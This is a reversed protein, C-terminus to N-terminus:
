ENRPEISETFASLRSVAERFMMFSGKDLEFEEMWPGRTAGHLARDLRRVARDADKRGSSIARFAEVCLEYIWPIDDRFYGAMMLLITPDEPGDLGRMSLDMMMEPHMMRRSRKSSGGGRALRSLSEESERVRAEVSRVGTVLEELVEQQPRTKREEQKPEPISEIKRELDPWLAEFLQNARDAPVAHECNTQISSVVQLLGDRALKKAQFQALPGSIGSFDLDLLIPIVRGSELSKALAGSEFLIWPSNVNEPTVCVIGFNSASLENAVSQAWRDGADIDANSMYPDVYHLVLPLWERLATAVARSRDGSWSLFIKM